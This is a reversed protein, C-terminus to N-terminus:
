SITAMTIRICSDCGGGALFLGFCALQISNSLCLIVIGIFTVTWGLVLAFKRGYNDTIFLFIFYGVFTGVYVIM